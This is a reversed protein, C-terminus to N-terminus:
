HGGPMLPVTTGAETMVTISFDETVLKERAIKMAEEASFAPILGANRVFEANEPQTVIILSIAEAIYAFKLAIFGPVTFGARLAIERDYKDTYKFWDSFDPPEKIDRCELFCIAVGGPRTAAFANDITKSGQYLNIDRPFGGASALTLDAQKTIPIGYIREVEKCGAEWADYWHGAFFRAFKGQPTFVANLLFAPNLAAAHQKMDDHMENGDLKGSVSNANLGKGIEKHLCFTHNGQISEYASVGPMIAKRGGGFGAMLHYSIGSTLIVTDAEAVRRNIIIPVGGSTTGLQVLNAKDHSDHQYVKVRHCTEAGCVAIDEAPTHPRHAGLTVVISIDTDPVGAINLEDLLTPLFQDHKIWARTIDGVTIVVKDGAQVTQALPAAGIPNCLAQRVASPVDDIAEVATGKIDYLIRDSPLSLEMSGAGFGFQYKKMSM